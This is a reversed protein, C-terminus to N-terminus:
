FLFSLLTKLIRPKIPAPRRKQKPTKVNAMFTLLMDHKQQRRTQEEQSGADAKRPYPVYPGTDPARKRAHGSFASLPIANSNVYKHAM